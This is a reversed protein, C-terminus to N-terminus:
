THRVTRNVGMSEQRGKDLEGMFIADLENLDLTHPM